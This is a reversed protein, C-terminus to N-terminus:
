TEEEMLEMPTVLFPVHLGLIANVRRIHGFKSANALHQCNWTLLYDCNEMSALALHLADGLPNRPMLKHEIYFRVVDETEGYGAIAPLTQAMKLARRRHALRGRELEALVATSTIVEYGPRYKKWWERTWNRMAVVEPSRRDDYYFSFVTTEVYVKKM